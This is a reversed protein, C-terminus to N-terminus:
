RCVYSSSVLYQCSVSLFFFLRKNKSLIKLDPKDKGTDRLAPVSGLQCHTICLTCGPCNMVHSVWLSLCVNLGRSLKSEGILKFMNFSVDAGHCQM